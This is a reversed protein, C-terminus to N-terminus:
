KSMEVSAYIPGAHKGGLWWGAFWSLTVCLVVIAGRTNIM